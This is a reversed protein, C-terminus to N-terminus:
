NVLTTCIPIEMQKGQIKAPIKKNFDFGPPVIAIGGVANCEPCDAYANMALPIFTAAAVIGAAVLGAGLKILPVGIVAGVGTYTLIGGGVVLVFGGVALAATVLTSKQDTKYMSVLMLSDEEIVSKALNTFSQQELRPESKYLYQWYTEQRGPMTTQAVYNMPSQIFGGPGRKQATEKNTSSEEIFRQLAGDFKITKCVLCYSTEKTDWNSFPDMKGEGVMHWCRRMGEALIKSAKEQNIKDDETIDDKTLVLETRECDIPSLQQGGSIKKLQAAKFISLRCIEEPNQAQQKKIYNYTFGGLLGATVMTLILVVLTTEAIGRKM